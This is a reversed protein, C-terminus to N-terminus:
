ASTQLVELVPEIGTASELNEFLKIQEMLESLTITSNKNKSQNERHPVIKCNMPHSMIKPDVNNKFGDSVSYLHDRSCGSLNNGKNSASYWGYEKILSSIDSFLQPYNSISFTFRCQYSYLKKTTAASPHITKVSPSYWKKGTIKCTCLYIRTHPGEATIVQNSRKKRPQKPLKPKPAPGTTITAWDKRANNYMAACSRSCFQNAKRQKYPIATDCNKCRKPNLLYQQASAQHRLAGNHEGACILSCYKGTSGVGPKFNKNCHLCTNMCTNINLVSNTFIEFGM